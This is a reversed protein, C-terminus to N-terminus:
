GSIFNRGTVEQEGFAASTLKYRGKGYQESKTGSSTTFYNDQVSQEIFTKGDQKMGNQTYKYAITNDDHVTIDKIDVYRVHESPNGIFEDPLSTPVAIIRAEVGMHDSLAQALKLWEMGQESEDMVANIRPKIGKDEMAAMSEPSFQDSYLLTLIIGKIGSEGAAGFGHMSDFDGLWMQLTTVRVNGGDTFLDEVPIDFLDAFEARDGPSDDRHLLAYCDRIAQIFRAIYTGGDSDAQGAQNNPLEAHQYKITMLTRSDLNYDEDWGFEKEFGKGLNDWKEDWSGTGDRIYFDREGLEPEQLEFTQPGVPEDMLGALLHRTEMVTARGHKGDGRAIKIDTGPIFFDDGTMPTNSDSSAAINPSLERLLAQMKAIDTTDDSGMGKTAYSWVEHCVSTFAAEGHEYGDAFRASMAAVFNDESGLQDIAGDFNFDDTLMDQYEGLKMAPAVQTRKDLDSQVPVVMDGKIVYGNYWEAPKKKDEPTDTHGVRTSPDVESRNVEDYDGNLFVFRAMDQERGEYNSIDRSRKLVDEATATDGGFSHDTTQSGLTVTTGEIHFAFGPVSCFSALASTLTERDGDSLGALSIWIPTDSPIMAWVADGLDAIGSEDSLDAIKGEGPEARRHLVAVGLLDVPDVGGSETEGNMADLAAQNGYAQSVQDFNTSSTSTSSSSESPSSKSRRSM